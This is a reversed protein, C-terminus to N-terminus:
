AAALRGGEATRHHAALSHGGEERAEARDLRIRLNASHPQVARGGGPDIEGALEVRRDAQHDRVAPDGVDVCDAVRVLEGPQVFLGREAASHRRQRGPRHPPPMGPASGSNSWRTAYKTALNPAPWPM